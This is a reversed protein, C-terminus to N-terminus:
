VFSVYTLTMMMTGQPFLKFEGSLRKSKTCIVRMLEVSTECMLEDKNVNKDVIHIELKSREVHEVLLEAEFKFVPNLNSSVVDSQATEDGIRVIVYPDSTSFTEKNPLNSASEIEIFIIGSSKTQLPAARSHPVVPASRVEKLSSLFDESLRHSPPAEPPEAKKRNSESTVPRYQTSLTITGRKKHEVDNDRILPREFEAEPCKVFDDIIIDTSGVYIDSGTVDFYCWLRIIGTTDHLTFHFKDKIESDAGIYSASKRRKKESGVIGIKFYFKKKRYRLFKLAFSVHHINITLTGLVGSAFGINISYGPKVAYCFGKPYSLMKVLTHRIFNDLFSGLGPVSDISIKAAKLNFNIEPAGLISILMNAFCPWDPIHPGLTIRFTARLQLDRVSVEMDPGPIQVRLSVDMSSNWSVAIDLTTETVGYQHNVIGNLVLPNSGINVSIVKFGQVVGPKMNTLMNSLIPRMTKDTAAVISPWLSEITQNLWQVRQSSPFCVWEPLNKGLISSPDDSRSLQAHLEHIMKVKAKTLNRFVYTVSAIVLVLEIQLQLGLAFVMRLIVWFIIGIYLFPIGVLATSVREVSDKFIPSKIIGEFHKVGFFIVVFTLLWSLKVVLILRYLLTPLVLLVNVIIM